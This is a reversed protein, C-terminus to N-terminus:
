AWWSSLVNGLNDSRLIQVWLWWGGIWVMWFGALGFLLPKKTAETAAEILVLGGIFLACAVLFSITKRM